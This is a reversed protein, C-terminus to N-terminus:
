LSLSHASSVHALVQFIISHLPSLFRSSSFTYTNPFTEAFHVDVDANADFGSLCLNWVGLVNLVGCIAFMFDKEAM